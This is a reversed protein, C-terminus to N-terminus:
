KAVEAYLKAGKPVIPLAELWPIGQSNVCGVVVLKPMGQFKMITERQNEIRHFDANMQTALEFDSHKPDDVGVSKAQEYTELTRRMAVRFAEREWPAYKLWPLYHAACAADIAEPTIM